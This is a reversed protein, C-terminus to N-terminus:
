ELQQALVRAAGARRDAGVVPGPEGPGLLVDAVPVAVNEDLCGGAAHVLEEGARQGECGVAVRDFEDDQGHPFGVAPEGGCQAVGTGQLVAAGAPEGAAGPVVGAEAREGVDDGGGLLVRLDRGDRHDSPVALGQQAM